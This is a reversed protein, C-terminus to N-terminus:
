RSREWIEGAPSHGDNRSTVGIVNESSRFLEKGMKKLSIGIISMDRAIPLSMSSFLSELLTFLFSFQAVGARNWCFGRNYLFCHLITWRCRMGWPFIRITFDTDAKIEQGPLLSPWFACLPGTCLWPSQSTPYSSVRVSWRQETTSSRTSPHDAWALGARAKPKESYETGKQFWLLSVPPFAFTLDPRLTLAGTRRKSGQSSCPCPPGSHRSHWPTSPVGHLSLIWGIMRPGRLFSM